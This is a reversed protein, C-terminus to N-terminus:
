TSFEDLDKAWSKKGRTLKNNKEIKIDFTNQNTEENVM